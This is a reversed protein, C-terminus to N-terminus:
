VGVEGELVLREGGGRRIDYIPSDCRTRAQNVICIYICANIYRSHRESLNAIPPCRVSFYINESLSTVIPCRHGPALVVPQSGLRM